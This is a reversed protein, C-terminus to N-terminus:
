SRGAHGTTRSVHRGARNRCRRRNALGAVTRLTLPEGGRMLADVGVIWFPTTTVLVAALGSPITLEAWALAGNAVGILLFGLVALSGWAALPPLRESRAKLAALILGGAPIWRLASMVLPPITEIAIRIGLYTTSWVVCVVIWAVYARRRSPAM